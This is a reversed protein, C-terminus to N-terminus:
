MMSGGRLSGGQLDWENSPFGVCTYDAIDSTSEFALKTDEQIGALKFHSQAVIYGTDLKFEQLSLVEVLVVVIDSM